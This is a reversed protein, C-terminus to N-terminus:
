LTTTMFYSEPAEAAVEFGLHRYFSIANENDKGVDLHLGAVGLERLTQQLGEILARGLGLGQGRPLLDIHFHAPYSEVIDAPSQPQAHILDIIRKNWSDDARKPYQARLAPWWDEEEWEWFGRSDSTALIYGAVGDADVVITALDPHRIAYPGAYLHGLLDPNAEPMSLQWGPEGTDMCVRYVGPLHSPHFPM